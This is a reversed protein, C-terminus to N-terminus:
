FAEGEATAVFDSHRSTVGASASQNWAIMGGAMNYASLGRTRALETAHASRVGSRCIFVYTADLHATLLFQDLLPGLTALTSGEICGEPGALEHPERVDILVYRARNEKADQVTIDMDSLM